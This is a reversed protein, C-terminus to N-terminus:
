QGRGGFPGPAQWARMNYVGNRRHLPVKGPIKKVLARIEEVLATGGPLIFSAEGDFLVPNGKDNVRSVAMLPRRVKGAQFTVQGISGPETVMKPTFQGQNPIKEGGPGVFKQGMLSGPSASVLHGPFDEPDAVSEGAGSDVTIEKFEKLGEQEPVSMNLDPNVDLPMLEIAESVYHIFKLHAELAAATSFECRCM